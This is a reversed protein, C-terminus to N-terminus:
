NRAPTFKLGASLMEADRSEGFSTLRRPWLLGDERIEGLGLLLDSVPSEVYVRVRGPSRTHSVPNGHAFRRAKERTLTVAPLLSILRDVPSLHALRETEPMAELAPLTQAERLEMQGVRIRRLMTLHAGCGLAEGLDEALTRIYVGKGCTVRLTLRPLDRAICELTHITVPRAERAVTQGARALVYLPVGDRKLASHMPPVQLIDGTFRPLVADIDADACRVPLTATVVGERDGSDTTVGLLLEAEYAKDAHLLDASFKTAEGFCIPLLGTAMPDLTGTHGAKAASFLRRAKQLAANSTMGAPKDLLLVGDVQRWRSAKMAMQAAAAEM